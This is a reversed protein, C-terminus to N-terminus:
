FKQGGSGQGYASGKVAESIISDEKTWETDFTESPVPIVSVGRATRPGIIAAKTGRFQDEVEVAHGETHSFAAALNASVKVEGPGYAVGNVFHRMSLRVTVLRNANMNAVKQPNKPRKPKPEQPYLFKTPKRRTM